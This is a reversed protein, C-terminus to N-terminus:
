RKLLEIPGDTQGYDGLRNQDSASDYNADFSDPEAEYIEDIDEDTFYAAEEDNNYVDESDDFELLEREDSNALNKYRDIELKTVLIRRM